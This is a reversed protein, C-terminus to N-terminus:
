LRKGIKGFESLPLPYNVFYESTTSISYLLQILVPDKRLPSHETIDHSTM